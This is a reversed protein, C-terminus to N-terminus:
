YTGDRKPQKVQAVHSLNQFKAKGYKKRGISAALAGPNKIGPKAALKGELAAFRGGGGLTMSKAM